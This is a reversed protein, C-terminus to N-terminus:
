DNENNEKLDKINYGDKYYEDTHVLPLINKKNIRVGVTGWSLGVGFGCCLATVTEDEKSEGYENVLTLPISSSSTNAFKNLSILLKEPAFGTKKAIRKMIMINAQHLVLCDYSDPTTGTDSMYKGIQVPVQNTAFNFVEIDDMMSTNGKGIPCDPNRWGCYPAFIAQYGNGNTNLEVEISGAVDKKLLTATGADGFLYAATHGTKNKSYASYERASTDGTLLLGYEAESNQMISAVIDLGYVFGSCGLNVDFAIMNESLGLRHQLVCATAPIRYDSTQSVFVLIGIKNKDLKCSDIIKQAAAFCFDSATQRQSASYRGEVGTKRIFQEVVKEDEDSIEMISDWKGSVAAAMCEVTVGEIKTRM